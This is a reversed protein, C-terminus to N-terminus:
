RNTWRWAVNRYILTRIWRLNGIVNIICTYRVELSYKKISLASESLTSRAEFAGIHQTSAASVFIAAIFAM